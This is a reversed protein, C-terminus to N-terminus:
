TKGKLKSYMRVAGWMLKAKLKNVGESILAEYFLNDAEKQPITQEVCYWDHLVAPKHTDATKFLFTTLPLKPVSAFDCVFGTPVIRWKRNADVFILNSSLKWLNEDDDVLTVTLDTIFGM